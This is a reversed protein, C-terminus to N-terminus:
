ARAAMAAGPIEYGTARLHELIKPGVTAVSRKFELYLVGGLDSPIEVNGRSLIIVRDRGLHAMFWGLELIVNQRARKKSGAAAPADDPTMVVIAFSCASAYQELREIVTLAGGAEEGLVIPNLQAAALLEKLEGRAAEDHGHVIFINRNSPTPVGSVELTLAEIDSLIKSRLPDTFWWKFKVKCTIKGPEVEVVSDCGITTIDCTYGTWRQMTFLGSLGTLLGRSAESKCREPHRNTPTEFIHWDGNRYYKM